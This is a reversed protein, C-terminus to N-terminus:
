VGIGHGSYDTSIWARCARYWAERDADSLELHDAVKVINRKLDEVSGVFAGGHGEGEADVFNCMLFGDSTIIASGQYQRRGNPLNRGLVCKVIAGTQTGQTAALLRDQWTVKESM